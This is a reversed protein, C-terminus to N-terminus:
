EVFQVKWPGMGTLQIETEEVAWVFHHSLPPNLYFSGPGYEAMSGEEWSDGFGVRVLGELVTVREDRPHWHVNMRSDAPVRLRMTFMGEQRPHGELLLMKTGPPLLPPADVWTHKDPPMQITGEPLVNSQGSSLVPAAISVLLAGWFPLDRHVDM